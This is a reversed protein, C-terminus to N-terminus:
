SGCSSQSFPAVSHACFPALRSLATPFPTQFPRSLSGLGQFPLINELCPPTQVSHILNLSNLHVATELKAHHHRKVRQFVVPHTDAMNSGVILITDALEIDEYSTPPGDSGLMQTYAIASSAMCLRSNSDVHNSGIHGKM